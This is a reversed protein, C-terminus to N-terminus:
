SVLEVINEAFVLEETGEQAPKDPVSVYRVQIWIGDRPNSVVEAVSGDSLRVRTGAELEMINIM